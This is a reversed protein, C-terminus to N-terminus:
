EALPWAIDGGPLRLGEGLAGDLFPVLRAPVRCRERHMVIWDYGWARLQAREAAIVAPDTPTEPARLEPPPQYYPPLTDRNWCATHAAAVLISRALLADVGEYNESIQRGHGLQWRTYIRAPDPSFMERGNDFPLQIIGGEGADPLAMLSEPVTIRYTTRPWATQAGVVSDALILAVLAPPLWRRAPLAQVGIAAAAALFPIAAASARHWHSLGRLEPVSTVLYWAPGPVGLAQGAVTPWYGLALLLPPLALLWLPGAQRAATYPLLLNLLDTGYIPLEAWDPRPGPPGPAPALWRPHWQERIQLFHLFSPLVMALALSGQLLTGPRRHRWLLAPVLLAEAILALLAHYWGSLGAAGLCLGAALAARRDGTRAHHILAAAHLGLWGLTWSETIGFDIVGALFPAGGCAAAAVCAAPPATWQRALAYGGLAALLVAVAAMGNWAVPLGLGLRALLFFPPLNVPDMLPIPVGDPANALPQAPTPLAARWFMWLHNDTEGLPDGILAVLPSDTPWLTVLLTAALTALLLRLHSPM